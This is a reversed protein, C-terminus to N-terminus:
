FVEALRLAKQHQIGQNSRPYPLRCRLRLVQARPQFTLPPAAFFANIRLPIFM